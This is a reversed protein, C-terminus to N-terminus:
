SEEEGGKENNKEAKNAIELVMSIASAGLIIGIACGMGFKIGEKMKTVEKFIIKIPTM